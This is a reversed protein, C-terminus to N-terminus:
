FRLGLTVLVKSQSRESNVPVINNIDLEYRLDAAVATTLKAEMRASFGVQYDAEDGPSVSFDAEEFFTLRDNIKYRFDQFLTAQYNWQNTQSALEQAQLTASPTVTARVRASDVLRWGFGLSQALERDIKAVGDSLYRTDGQLFTRKSLDHRLRAGAQLRDTAAYTNGAMNTIEVYDYRASLRYEGRETRRNSEFRFNLDQRDDRAELLKYTFNVSSKWERLPRHSVWWDVAPHARLRQWWSLPVPASAALAGDEVEPATPAATPAPAAPTSPWDAAEPPQQSELAMEDAVDLVYSEPWAVVQARPLRVEGLAQSRFVVVEGEQRVVTGKLREGSRLVLTDAWAAGPALSLGVLLGVIQWWVKMGKGIGVDGPIAFSFRRFGVKGGAKTGGPGQPRSSVAFVMRATDRVRRPFITEPRLRM